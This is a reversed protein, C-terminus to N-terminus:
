EVKEAKYNISKVDKFRVISSPRATALYCIALGFITSFLSGVLIGIKAENFLFQNNSFALSGIFLSMTFGIGTLITAGYFEFWDAGRPLHAIKLKIAMFSFSIVGIQKGAFLAMIIGFTLPEHITEISFNSITVGSNAFAFIPLILFNVVPAIKHALNALMQKNRVQLPIFFALIVGSITAHIGSKLFFIWLFIGVFLYLYTKGVKKYNMLALIIIAIIAAFLFVGDISNTYFFAIILIAVLDDLVALAILFIKLSNSIKKGFLSIMGYAFAIDTACPIAFGKLNEPYNKNILFFFLAPILVGGFAALAPLTIKSKKSLEGVLVEKKLEMGVLLFFIAMLFDDIWSLMTMEKYIKLIPINLPLHINLFDNYIFANESNSILLALVASLMLLIGISAESKFFTKVIRIM